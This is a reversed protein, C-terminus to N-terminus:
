LEEISIKEEVEGKPRDNNCFMFISVTVNKISLIMKDQEGDKVGKFIIAEQTNILVTSLEIVSCM